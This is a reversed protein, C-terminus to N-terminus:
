RSQINLEASKGWCKVAGLGPPQKISFTPLQLNQSTKRYFIPTHQNIRAIKRLEKCIKYLGQPVQYWFNGLSNGNIQLIRECNLLKFCFPPRKMTTDVKTNTSFLNWFCVKDLFLFFQNHIPIPPEKILIRKMVAKCLNWWSSFVKKQVYNKSTESVFFEM